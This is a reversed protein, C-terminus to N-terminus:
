LKLAEILLKEGDLRVQASKGFIQAPLATEATRYIGAIAVLEAEMSSAFIRAPLPRAVCRRMSMSIAM